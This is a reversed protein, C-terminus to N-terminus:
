GNERPDPVLWGETTEVLYQAAREALDAPYGRVILVLPEDQVPDIHFQSHRDARDILSLETWGTDDRHTANGDSDLDVKDPFLCAM